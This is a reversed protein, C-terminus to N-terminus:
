GWRAILATVRRRLRTIVRDARRWSEWSELQAHAWENARTLMDHLRVFWGVTMLAPKCLTYLRAFLATAILKSAVLLLFGWRFHGTAMVWLAALEVPLMAVGPVLFVMAAWLPPLAAIGSELRAVVPLRGLGAMLAKLGRWLYQEFLMLAVGLSVLLVGLLRSSIM